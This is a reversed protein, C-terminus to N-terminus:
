LQPKLVPQYQHYRNIAISLLLPCDCYAVVVPLSLLCYCYTIAVHSDCYANAIPLSQLCCCYSSAIVLTTVLLVLPSLHGMEPRRDDRSNEHAATAVHAVHPSLGLPSLHGM